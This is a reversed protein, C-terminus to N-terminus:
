LQTSQLAAPLKQQIGGHPNRVKLEVQTRKKIRAGQPFHLVSVYHVCETNSLPHHTFVLEHVSIIVWVNVGKKVGFLLAKLLHYWVYLLLFQSVM